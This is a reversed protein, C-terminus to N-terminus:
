EAKEQCAFGVEIIMGLKYKDLQDVTLVIETGENTKMRFTIIEPITTGCTEMINEAEILIIMEKRKM